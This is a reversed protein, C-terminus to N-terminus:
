SKDKLAMLVAFPNDPDVKKDGKSPGTSFTRAGENRDKREPKGKRPRKDRGDDRDRRDGKPKGQPKDGREPKDRRPRDSRPQGADGGAEAPADRRPGRDPRTRPKPKWAFTYFTETEPV